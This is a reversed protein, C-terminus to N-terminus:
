FVSVWRVARGGHAVCLGGHRAAKDCSESSCRIGGGHKLCFVTKGADLCLLGGAARFFRAVLIRLRVKLLSEVDVKMSVCGLAPIGTM